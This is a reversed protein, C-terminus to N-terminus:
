NRDHEPTVRGIKSKLMHQRSVMQAGQVAIVHRYAPVIEYVKNTCDLRVIYHPKLTHCSKGKLRNAHKPKSQFLKVIFYM